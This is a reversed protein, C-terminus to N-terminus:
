KKIYKKGNVIIVGKYSSNVRQGNLNYGEASRLASSEVANIGTTTNEFPVFSRAAGVEDVLYAKNPAITTGSTVLMLGAKGNSLGLAYLTTNNEPVVITANSTARLLNGEVEAAEAVVPVNYSGAEGKLIVGTNAAVATTIPSLEAQNDFSTVAYATLGEVKTFDLALVSSYSAIGASTVTVTVYEPAVATLVVNKEQSEAFSVGEESYQEYGECSVTFDYDLTHKVINLTYRGESDTTASYKVNGSQAKVQAGAVVGGLSSTVVGSVVAPAKEVDLYLVPSAALTAVTVEEATAGNGSVTSGLGTQFTTYVARSGETEVLFVLKLNKGGYVYPEDLTISFKDEPFSSTGGGVATVSGDYILTMGETSVDSAEEDTTEAIYAKVSSYEINSYGAGRYTIKNIKTGATFGLESAKYVSATAGFLNDATTTALPAGLQSGSYWNSDPRGVQALGSEKEEAITVNVSQSEFTEEGVVIRVLVEAEVAEAPTSTFNFTEKGGAALDKGEAVAIVEGGAVLEVTYDDASLSNGVNKVNVSVAYESNVMGTAPISQSIVYVDNEVEVKRYGIINDVEVNYGDFAIYWEGAPINDVTFNNFSSPIESYAFEKATIWEKRDASYKVALSCDAYKARDMDFSLTEGETVKLKPLILKTAVGNVNTNQVFNGYYNSYSSWGDEDVVDTPMLGDEFDYEVVTPDATSASAQITVDSLGENTPHVTIVASKDGFNDDFVLAIEFQASEGKGVSLSSPTVTFQTDDSSSLEVNLTGTGANTVTYVKAEPQSKIKTGFNAATSSLVMEPANENLSFGNVAAIRSDDAWFQVKYNGAELGELFFVKYDNTLEANSITKALTFDGGDKSVYIPLSSSTTVTRKAAIALREGESVALVPTTLKPKTSQYKGYAGDGDFTWGTTTWGEPLAAASFDEFFKSEDAVFGNLSYTVSQQEPASVTVNGTHEGTVDAKITITVDASGGPAVVTPVDSIVFAEDDSVVSVDTLDSKGTNKISITATKDSKVIGFYQDSGVVEMIPAQSYAGGYIGTINVYWGRFRLYKATAPIQVNRETWTGYVDDTFTQVNDWTKGDQSVQVTISPSYWTSSGSRSTNFKLTENEEFVLLPSTLTGAYSSSSGSYSAYHIGNSEAVSWSYYSSSSATTWGEPIVGEAFNVYLKNPDKIDCSLNIEFADLGVPSFIVKGTASEDPVSVAVVVEEGAAIVVSSKDVSFGGETTINVTVSETGPNKLTFERTTGPNVLGYYVADGSKYGQVRFAPGEAAAEYVFTTKPVFNYNSSSTSNKQAWSGKTVESGYFFAQSYNNGKVTNHIGVLLNGGNYEYPEVFTITMIDNTADLTGSYVVKANATRLSAGSFFTQAVEELFVEYTATWAKTSKSSVYFKLETVTSGKMTELESAPVIFESKTGYVDANYGYVPVIENTATGDYVTLTGQARVQTIGVLSLM